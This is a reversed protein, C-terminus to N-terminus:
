TSRPSRLFRDTGQLDGLVAYTLCTPGRRPALLLAPVESDLHLAWTILPAAAATLLAMALGVM